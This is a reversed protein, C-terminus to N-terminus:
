GFRPAVVRRCLYQLPKIRLHWRCRLWRTRLLPLLHLRKIALLGGHDVYCMGRLGTLLRASPLPIQDLLRM